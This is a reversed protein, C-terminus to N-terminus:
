CVRQVSYLSVYDPVNEVMQFYHQNVGMNDNMDM